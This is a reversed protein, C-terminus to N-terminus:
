FQCVPIEKRESVRCAAASLCRLLYPRCVLRESKDPQEDSTELNRLFGNWYPDEEQQKGSNKEPHEAIETHVESDTEPMGSSEQALMLDSDNIGETLADLPPIDNKM